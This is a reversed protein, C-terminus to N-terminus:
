HGVLQKSTKSIKLKLRCILGSARADRSYCRVKGFHGLRVELFRRHLGAARECFTTSVFDTVFIESHVCLFGLSSGYSARIRSHM